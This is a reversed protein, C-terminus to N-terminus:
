WFTVIFFLRCAFSLVIFRNMIELSSLYCKKGLPYNHVSKKQSQTHECYHTLGVTQLYSMFEMFLMEFNM